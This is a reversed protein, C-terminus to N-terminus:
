HVRDLLLFVAFVFMIRLPYKRPPAILNSLDEESINQFWEPRGNDNSVQLINISTVTLCETSEVLESLRGDDVLEPHHM